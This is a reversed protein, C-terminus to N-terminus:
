ELPGVCDLCIGDFPRHPIPLHKSEYKVKHTTHQCCTLCNNVHLNVQERMRRFWFRRKIMNITRSIGQHGRNDHFIRIIRHVLRQPIVYVQYTNRLISVQKVLLGKHNIRFDNEKHLSKALRRCFKDRKQSRLLEKISIVQGTNFVRKFDSPNTAIDLIEEIRDQLNIKVSVPKENSLEVYLGENKLRLIIDAIKNLGGQIFELSIDFEQLESSWRVLKAINMGGEFFNKLPKRDSFVTTKAGTIYFAFRKVSKYITYAEKEMINWKSHTKDFNGSFYAVPALEDTGPRTQQLIGSYSYKSADSHIVYDKNVQPIILVPEEM